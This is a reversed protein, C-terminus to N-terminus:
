FYESQLIENGKRGIDNAGINVVEPQDSEGKLIVPVRSAVCWGPTKNAALSEGAQGGVISDAILVATEIRGQQADSGITTVHRKRLM